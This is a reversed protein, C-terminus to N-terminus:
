FHFATNLNGTGIIKGIKFWRKRVTEMKKGLYFGSFVGM